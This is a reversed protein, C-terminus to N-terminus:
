NEHKNIVSDIIANLEDSSIQMAAAAIAFLRKEGEALLGDAGMMQVTERLLNRRAEADAPIHFEANPSSARDIAERFQHDAIGWQQCRDSLLNFEDRSIGGDALAMVVINEFLQVRDM